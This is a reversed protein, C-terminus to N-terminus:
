VAARVLQRLYASLTLGKRKAVAEARDRAAVSIRFGVTMRSSKGASAGSESVKSPDSDKM